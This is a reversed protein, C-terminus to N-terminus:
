TGVTICQCLRIAKYNDEGLLIHLRWQKNTQTNTHRNAVKCLFKQVSKCSIKLSPQCHAMSFVTLNQHCDTESILIWIRIQIAVSTLHVKASSTHLTGTSRTQLTIVATSHTNHAHFLFMVAASTVLLWFRKPMSYSLLLRWLERTLSRSCRCQLNCVTIALQHIVIYFEAWVLWSQATVLRFIIEQNQLWWCTM